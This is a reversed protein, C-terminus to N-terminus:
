AARQKNREHERKQKEYEFLSLKSAPSISAFARTDTRRLELLKEYYPNPSFGLKQFEHWLKLAAATSCAQESM